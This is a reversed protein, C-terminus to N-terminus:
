SCAWFDYPKNNKTGKWHMLFAGCDSCLSAHEKIFKNLDEALKDRFERVAPLYEAKGEAIEDLRSELSKNLDYDAFAFKSSLCSILEEGIRAARLQRKDNTSVYGRSSINDM